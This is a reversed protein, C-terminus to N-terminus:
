DGAPGTGRASQARTAGTLSLLESLVPAVQQRQAHTRNGPASHCSESSKASRLPISSPCETRGELSRQAAVCAKGTAHHQERNAYPPIRKHRPETRTIQAPTMARDANTVGAGLMGADRPWLSTTQRSVGLAATQDPGRAERSVSTVILRYCNELVRRRQAANM